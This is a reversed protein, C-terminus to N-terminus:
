EKIPVGGDIKYTNIDNDKIINKYKITSYKATDKELNPLVIFYKDNNKEGIVCVGTQDKIVEDATLSSVAAAM